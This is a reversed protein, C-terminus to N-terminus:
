CSGMIVPFHDFEFISIPSATHQGCVLPGVGGVKDLVRLPHYIRCIDCINTQNTLDTHAAPM